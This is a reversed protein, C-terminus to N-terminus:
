NELRDWGLKRMLENLRAEIWQQTGMRKTLEGYCRAAEDLIGSDDYLFALLFRPGNDAPDNQIMAQLNREASHVREAQDAPLLQFYSAAEDLTDEGNRATLRWWYKQGWVLPPATAPYRAETSSVTQRWQVREERDLVKIDYATAREVPGWRFVPQADATNTRSPSRLLLDGRLRTMGSQQLSAASLALHTPLRCAPVKREETVKGKLVRVGAAEFLVEGGAGIKGAKQDPCYLFSAESGKGVLLRDGVSVIDAARAEVPTKQGARVLQVNGAVMSLLGVPEAAHAALSIFLGLVVSRLM